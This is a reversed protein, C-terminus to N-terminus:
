RGGPLPIPSADAALHATFGRGPLDLVGFTGGAKGGGPVFRMRWPDFLIPRDKMRENPERLLAGPNVIVGAGPIEIRFPVHTHGVALVDAGTETVHAGLEGPTLFPPHIGRMDSRSSAHRFAVRVGDSELDMSAPLSQLFEVSEPALKAQARELSSEGVAWRDHNGRICPIAEARLLALMADPETGYDVLDGLCVIRDCAMGEIARLADELARVDGHVDALIAIRM